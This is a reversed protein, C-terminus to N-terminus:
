LKMLRATRRKDLAALILLSGTRKDDMLSLKKIVAEFGTKDGTRYLAKAKLYHDGQKRTHM